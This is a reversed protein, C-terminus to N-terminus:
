FVSKLKMCAVCQDDHERLTQFTQDCSQCVKEYIPLITDEVKVIKDEIIIAKEPCTDACLRCSSCDQLSLSFHGEGIAFCKKHCVRECVTCLTCKEVNLSINSFQYGTYHKQLNSVEHNFRWKAPTVQKMISKSENKWLSFLARRSYHEEKQEVSKVSVSFPSEGLERLMKNAEEIPQNWSQISPEDKGIITQIGKKYYILLEKSSPIHQGSIVLQNQSIKREPLIGAIAQVPCAVICKGCQVCKNHDVVPQRNVISIAEEECVAICQECASYHGQHRTCSSLIEYEYDLSEVWKSLLGM